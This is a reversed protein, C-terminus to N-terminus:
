EGNECTYFFQWMNLGSKSGNEGFATGAGPKWRRITGKPASQRAATV